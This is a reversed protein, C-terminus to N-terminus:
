PVIQNHFVCVTHLTKPMFMVCSKIGIDTGPMMSDGTEGVYFCKEIVGSGIQFNDFPHQRRLHFSICNIIIRRLVRLNWQHM